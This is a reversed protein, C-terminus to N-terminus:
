INIRYLKGDIRNVFFLASESPSLFLNEADYNDKIENLELIREKKGTTVDVKWFTDRTTFKKSAYDNPLVSGEPISGPLAYFVKKGDKSWVCKSVFTPINLNQYEGGNKNITALMIRSSGKTESSSVLMKEGDPSWLYDAGFKKSFITKAEGGTIGVTQLATEELGHPRNWFSILSSRPIPAISVYDFSTEALQKWNSGDPDAIGIFKKRTKSDFYKYIIKDELNAWVIDYIREPIKESIKSDYDYSYFIPKGNNEFTSVVKNKEPSWIINKLGPIDKNSVTKKNKGELDTEFVNGNSRDYYLVHERDRSITPAIVSEEALLQIKQPSINNQVEPVPSVSKQAVSFGEKEQPSNKKFAFNYIGLFVLFILFLISSIIFAKKILSM